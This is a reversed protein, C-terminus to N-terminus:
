EANRDTYQYYESQFITEHLHISIVFLLIDSKLLYKNRSITYENSIFTYSSYM